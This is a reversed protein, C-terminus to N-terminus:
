LCHAFVKLESLLFSFIINVTTGLLVLFFNFMEKEINYNVIIVFEIGSVNM